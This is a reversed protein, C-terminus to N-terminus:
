SEIISTVFRIACALRDDGEGIIRAYPFNHKKILEEYRANLYDRKDPNVRLPDQVWPIDPQCVLYFGPGILSVEKLLWAPVEHFVEDYWVILNFLDTDFFVPQKFRYEHFREITAVAIRDLDQRTFTGPQASLYERAFEYVPYGDFREALQRTLTSKGTSEAGTIYFIGPSSM